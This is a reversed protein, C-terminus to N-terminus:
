FVVREFKADDFKIGRINAHIFATDLMKTKSFDANTLDTSIFSTGVLRSKRLNVSRLESTFFNTDYAICNCMLSNNLWTGVFSACSLNTYRFDCGECIANNFIAGSLNQGKLSLTSLDKGTFDAREGRTKDKLWKKHEILIQDLETQNM